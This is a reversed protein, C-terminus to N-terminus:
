CDMIAPSFWARLEEAVSGHTAAGGDVVGSEHTSLVVMTWGLNTPQGSGSWRGEPSYVDTSRVVVASETPKAAAGGGEITALSNSSVLSNRCQQKYRFNIGECRRLRKYYLM